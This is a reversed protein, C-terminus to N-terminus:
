RGCFGISKNKDGEKCAMEQGLLNCLDSADEGIGLVEAKRRVVAFDGATLKSLGTATALEMGFFHRFAALVQAESMYDFCCKFTFRRLSAPDLRERLNTTCAFPLSHREMWTLMENVQSIEWSRTAHRRDGLLSDAEDFILFAERDRAEAFAGAIQKESGGVYMDLLDSARKLLVPM